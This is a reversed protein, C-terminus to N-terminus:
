LVHMLCMPNIMGGELKWASRCTHVLRNQVGPPRAEVPCPFDEACFGEPHFRTLVWRKIYYGSICRRTQYRGATAHLVWGTAYSRM